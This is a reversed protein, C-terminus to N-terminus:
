NQKNEVIPTEKFLQLYHSAGLIDQFGSNGELFQLRSDNFFNQSQLSPFKACYLRFHLLALHFTQFSGESEACVKRRTTFRISQSEEAERRNRPAYGDLHLLLYMMDSSILLHQQTHFFYLLRRTSCNSVDFLSTTELLKREAALREYHILVASILFIPQFCLAYIIALFLSLKFCTNFDDIRNQTVAPM